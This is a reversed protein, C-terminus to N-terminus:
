IMVFCLYVYFLSFKLLVFRLFVPFICGQTGYFISFFSPLVLLPYIFSVFLLPPCPLLCLCPSTPHSFCRLPHLTNFLPSLHVYPHTPLSPPSSSVLLLLPHPIYAIETFQNPRSLTPCPPPSPRPPFHLPPSPRSPSSLIFLTQRHSSYILTFPGQNGRERPLGVRDRAAM